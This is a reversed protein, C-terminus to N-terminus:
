PQVEEYIKLGIEALWAIGDNLSWEEWTMYDSGPFQQMLGPLATELEPGSDPCSAYHTIPGGSLSCLAVSFDPANGPTIAFSAALNNAQDRSSAPVIILTRRLNSM